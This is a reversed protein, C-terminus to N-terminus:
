EEVTNGSGAPREIWYVQEVRAADRNVDALVDDYEFTVPAECTGAEIQDVRTSCATAL